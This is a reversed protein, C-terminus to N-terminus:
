LSLKERILTACQMPTSRSTDVELDYKMDKHIRDYQWRALGILRDGRARERAELFDLPAFIGILSVQFCCMGRMLREGIPGARIVVM